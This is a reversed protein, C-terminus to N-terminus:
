FTLRVIAGDKQPVQVRGSTEGYIPHWAKVTYRGAALSPLRFEGRANPRAYTRDPLVVIFGAARPHLECYVDVVGPRDFRVRRKEGPAYFGTDFRKAKAVSFANHYVRDHNEFEVITGPRVVIVYPEFGVPTQRVRRRELWGPPRPQPAGGDVVFAVADRVDAADPQPASRAPKTQDAEAAPRPLTLTGRISGTTACGGPGLVIVITALRCACRLAETITACRGAPIPRM